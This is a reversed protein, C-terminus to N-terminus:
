KNLVILKDLKGIDFLSDIQAQTPLSNSVPRGGYGSAGVKIWRKSYFAYDDPHKADPFAKAAIEYHISPVDANGRLKQIKGTPLIWFQKERREEPSM